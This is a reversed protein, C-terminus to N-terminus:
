NNLTNFNKEISRIRIANFQVLKGNTFKENGFLDCEMIVNDGENIGDMIEINKHIQPYIYVSNKQRFKLIQILTGRNTKFPKDIREITGIVICM